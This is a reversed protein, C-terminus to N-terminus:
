LTLCFINPVTITYMMRQYIKEYKNGGEIINIKDVVVMIHGVLGGTNGIRLMKIRIRIRPGMGIVLPDPEPDTGSVFPDPHGWFNRIRFVAIGGGGGGGV